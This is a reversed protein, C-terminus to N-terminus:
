NLSLDKDFTIDSTPLVSNFSELAERLTRYCEILQTIGLYKMSEISDKQPLVLKLEGNTASVKRVTKVIMGIFVSDIFHCSSVDIIIKNWDLVSNIDLYDGFLTADRYNAVILETNVIIVDGVNKIRFQDM